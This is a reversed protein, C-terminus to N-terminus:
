QCMEFDGSHEEILDEKKKKNWSKIQKERLKADDKSPQVECWVLKVPRRSYTYARKDSGNKHHSFRRRLNSTM